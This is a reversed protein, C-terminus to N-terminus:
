RRWTIYMGDRRKFGLKSLADVIEAEMEYDCPQYEAMESHFPISFGGRMAADYCDELVRKLTQNAIRERSQATVNKLDSAKPLDTMDLTIM